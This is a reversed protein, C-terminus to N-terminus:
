TKGEGGHAPSKAGLQYEEAATGLEDARMPSGLASKESMDKEDSIIERWSVGQRASSRKRVGRSGERIDGFQMDEDEDGFNGGLVIQPSAVRETQICAPARPSDNIWAQKRPNERRM